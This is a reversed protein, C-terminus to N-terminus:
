EWSELFQGVFFRNGPRHRFRASSIGNWNDKNTMVECRVNNVNSGDSKDNFSYHLYVTEPHFIVFV